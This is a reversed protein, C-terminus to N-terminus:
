EHTSSHNFDGNSHWLILGSESSHGDASIRLILDFHFISLELRAFDLLKKKFSACGGLCKSFRPFDIVCMWSQVKHNPMSQDNRGFSTSIHQLAKNCSFILCMSSLMLCALPLPLSILQLQKTWETQM